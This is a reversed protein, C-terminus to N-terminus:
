TAVCVVPCRIAFLVVSVRSTRAIPLSLRELFEYAPLFLDHALAHALVLLSSGARPELIRVEELVPLVTLVPVRALLLFFVFLKFLAEVPIRPFLPLLLLRVEPVRYTDTFAQLM